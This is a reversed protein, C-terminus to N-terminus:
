APQQRYVEGSVLMAWIIRAMKNALAVAALKKPKRALLQLLWPAARGAKAQQIVATAGLVLLRRLRHDGQRSIRGLQQRGATSHERPTIGLWAAFHRGSRFVRADPVKLAFSLAGIPGVGPITALLRSRPDTRHRAMLRAEIAALQGALGDLLARALAPVGADEAVRQLLAAIREPGKAGVVGFEAAHGRIANVLMTRQKVLLDRVKLLMLGAQEERSKVPVFRMGPRSMAECIAAADSADNKGRKVYPKIYQPPMLVVEHGLGRLVRAWHHAAGCAELGIRTSPLKGFFKAVEARRLRRRLVAQEHEDVGHLQFVHKSTDMGIRIITM